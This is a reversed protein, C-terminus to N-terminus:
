LTRLFQELDDLDAPRLHSTGGHTDFVGGRENRGVEGKRLGPHGPTALVERLSRARGDHLLRSAPRDWLGRLPTAGLHLGAPGQVTLPFTSLFGATVRSADVGEPTLSPTVVPPFRIPMGFPSFPEPLTATTTLPLPHCTACGVSPDEFVARGRQASPLALAANPNPLLRSTRLMFLGVARTLGDFDLAMPARSGDARTTVLVDGFTTDRGFLRRAAQKILEARKLPAGEAYPRAACEPPPHNACDLVHVCGPTTPAQACTGASPYQSWVTPDLQECCFNEKRAFENLVPFFNEETMASEFFWPRTEFLGRQAMVNRAGHLRSQQLPMIIPRAIAGNDRHCHVCTQDGDITFAATMENIAEGLEADTAPFAGRALDGVVVTMVRTDAPPTTGAPALASPPAVWPVTPDLITLSEGLRDVTLLRGDAGVALAKPNMGTALTPGPRPTLAGDAGITFGEVENSGAYAVWLTDADVTMAEPLAGRVIWTSRPPLYAVVDPKWTDPAPLRTGRDPADPDVDRFDRCCTTDSTYRHVEALTRVDIVALENQLDQFIVNATGDGPAGDGDLDNGQTPHQGLGPGMDSVFVYDGKAALGGVPSRLDRQGVRALTHADLVTLNCGAVAGVFLRSGDASLVMPGPNEGVPAGMPDEPRLDPGDYNTGTVVFDPGAALDWVLVSDKWRNALVVRRGDASFLASETYSPTPVWAAVAEAAVDLVAAHDSTRLTVVLWRGAPDLACGYPSTGVPIRRTVRGQVLDVVAVATGPDDEVGALLVFARRGDPTLCLARPRDRHPAPSWLPDSQPIPNVPPALMGVVRPTAADSCALAGTALVWAVLAWTARHSTM